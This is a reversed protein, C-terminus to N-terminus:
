IPIQKNSVLNLYTDKTLNNNLYLSILEQLITILKIKNM